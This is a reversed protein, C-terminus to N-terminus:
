PANKSPDTDTATKPIGFGAQQRPEQGALFEPTIERYNSGALNLVAQDVALREANGLSFYGRGFMERSATMATLLHLDAAIMRLVNTPFNEDAMKIRRNIAAEEIAL